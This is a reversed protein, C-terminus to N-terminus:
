SQNSQTEHKEKERECAYFGEEGFSPPVFHGFHDLKGCNPCLKKPPLALYLKWAIARNKERQKRNM